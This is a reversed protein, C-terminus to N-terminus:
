KGYHCIRKGSINNQMYCMDSILQEYAPSTWTSITHLNNDELRNTFVALNLYCLDSFILM